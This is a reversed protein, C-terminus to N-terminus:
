DSFLLEFRLLPLADGLLQPDGAQDLLRQKGLFKRLDGPPRDVREVARRPLDAAVEVVEDFQALPRIPTTSPSTVSM